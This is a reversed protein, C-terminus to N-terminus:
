TTDSWEAYYLGTSLYKGQDKNKSETIEGCRKGTRTTEEPPLSGMDLELSFDDTSNSAAVSKRINIATPDIM